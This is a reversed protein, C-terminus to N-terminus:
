AILCNSALGRVAYWCLRSSTSRASRQRSQGSGLFDGQGVDVRSELEEAFWCWGDGRLSIGVRDLLGTAGQSASRGVSVACWRRHSGLGQCSRLLESPDTRGPISLEFEQEYSYRGLNPGCKPASGRTVTVCGPDHPGLSASTTSTSSHVIRLLACRSRGFSLRVTSGPSRRVRRILMIDASCRKSLTDHGDIRYWKERM